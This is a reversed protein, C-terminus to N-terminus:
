KENDIKIACLSGCMSCHDKPKTEMDKKREKAYKPDIAHKFMGEWDLEKRAKSMLNDKEIAGKVGKILDGAHAAIRSAIIGQKVDDIDPLCLHEAPTVYCLFDTGFSAAMAGGIAGTIHDYGPAIDTVLPGLVYFPANNCLRKMLKVNTEIQDLPVHGPGEVMVQVGRDQARRVLDGLILLESVQARDTADSIAGPRLGDGLSLTVDYKECIDLLRDYQEYLPNENGTDLIWKKLLSGGRSVIGMIRGSHELYSLSEKTIGCHVTVFDVGQEAQMQIENFLDDATMEKIDRKEHFLKTIVAYIPVTGLMLPSYELLKKRILNLNGSTSLDMISDAGYEISVDLKKLEEELDCKVESTGFNANIKTTLGKGIARAQFNHNINKPIVIEGSKLGDLITDPSIGEFEAAQKMEVTLTGALAHQRQTM